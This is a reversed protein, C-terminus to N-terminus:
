IKGTPLTMKKIKGFAVSMASENGEVTRSMVRVADGSKLESLETVKIINTNPTLKIVHTKGDKDSKVEIVPNAADSTDIKTVSGTIFNFAPRRVAQAAPIAKEDAAHSIGATVICLVAAVLVIISNKIM